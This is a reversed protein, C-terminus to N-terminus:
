AHTHPSQNIERAALRAHEWATRIKWNWRSALNKINKREVRKQTTHKGNCTGIPNSVVVHNTHNPTASRLARRHVVTRGHVAIMKHRIELYPVFLLAPKRNFNSLKLRRQHLVVHLKQRIGDHAAPLRPLPITCGWRSVVMDPLWM